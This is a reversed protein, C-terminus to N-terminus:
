QYVWKYDSSRRYNVTNIKQSSNFITYNKSFLNGVSEGSFAVMDFEAM